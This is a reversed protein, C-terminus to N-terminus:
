FGGDGFGGSPPNITYLNNPDLDPLAITSPDIIFIQPTSESQDNVVVGNNIVTAPTGDVLNNNNGLNGNDDAFSSGQGLLGGLEFTLDVVTNLLYFAGICGPCNIQNGLSANSADGINIAISSDSFFSNNDAGLTVGNGFCDSFAYPHENTNHDATGDYNNSGGCDNAQLQNQTVTHRSTVLDGLTLNIGTSGTYEVTNNDVQANVNGSFSSSSSIPPKVTIGAANIDRITNQQAQIDISTAPESEVLIGNMEGKTESGTGTFDGDILNNNALLVAQNNSFLGIGIASTAIDYITNNNINMFHRQTATSPFEGFLSTNFFSSAGFSQNNAATLNLRESLGGPSQFDFFTDVFIANQLGSSADGDGNFTNNNIAMTLTNITDPDSGLVAEIGSISPGSLSTINSFESNTVTLQEIQGDTRIGAISSTNFFDSGSLNNVNIFYITATTIQQLYVGANIEASRSDDTGFGNVEYRTAVGPGTLTFSDADIVVIGVHNSDPLTSSNTVTVNSNTTISGTEITVDAVSQLRIGQHEPNTITSNTIVVKPRSGTASPDHVYISAQGNDSASLNLINVEGSIGDLFIAGGLCNNISMFRSVSLDSLAINQGRMGVQTSDGACSVTIGSVRNNDALNIMENGIDSTLVPATNAGLITQSVDDIIGIVNQGQGMMVQGTKLDISENYTQTSANSFIVIRDNQNSASEAEGLTTFPQTSRGDGGTNANSDVYWFNQQLTITVTGQASFGEDNNVTYDFTDTTNEQGVPPTYTFTGNTNMVALGGLTTAFGDAVTTLNGSGENADNDLVSGTLRLAAVTQLDGPNTGVAMQTNGFSTYSDDTVTIDDFLQNVTISITGTNSNETGDNVVYQFSDTGFFNPNPTYVLEGSVAIKITAKPNSNPGQSGNINGSTVDLSGNQPGQTVNFTMADGDADSAPLNVDLFSDEDITESKDGAVPATNTVTITLTATNSTAGQNDNVTYTLTDTGTFNSNPTYAIEGATTTNASGNSPNTVLTVTTADLSGDVDTDNSLVPTLNDVTNKAVTTTDDTATPADNIPNVTISVTAENSDSTGDNAKFKFSDPGNYNTNPTYTVNPATGSLIGNSPNQSITYTLTDDEIDSASLTINTATDENTNASVNSATPADNVANITINITAPASDTTGDNTTFQFSDNGNFNNSPTYTLNPATGSLEGQTRSPLLTYTINDGDADSGTLTINFTTDENTSLNQSDATPADNVSNVTINITGTASNTQGDNAIFQLSDTGNFNANPTYTLNPTTGSLTGNSPNQTVTYTLTDGDIDNGTLTISQATDEDTAINQADATPADNVSTVTITITGENSNLQGDNVIFNLNDTGNFNANPTYTLAPATGSLTGNSPQQTITYTLTNGDVDSGMLNINVSNDENTNVSANNAVPADNIANVTISITATSSNLQGDNSVFTFSDTGNFDANPTYTLNPATGSLTGNSPQQTVTYTLNDGDADNGTLPINVATDENTSINQNDATPADNVPDFNLTITAPASNLVGDNTTFTFRDVGNFGDNPTYTLNPVAGTLTGNTPQQNVTFSLTDGDIDSGTLTIGLPTDETGNLTQNDAVPADNVPNVTITVTAPAANVNGDNATFTFSDTGNFDANPTYTLNPATGTLTGNSPQQTVTYTLSDGDPDSGTLTLNVATDENTSVNQNNATPADNVAAINLAITATTSNAQGDNTTFTFNDSGNFGINPTYTLNPATGTLTGNTPQQNVTFSLSDGDVDAGTLTISLPTDEVANLIQNDAVPADNVPNVTISVTATSSNTNGDNSVFTFSDAGNFNANPMYVLEPANGSLTGNSPDNIVNFSLPDNEADSGTLTITLQTDENLNLTQSNALPVDNVLTINFRTNANVTFTGDTVSLSLEDEVIEEGLHQISINGALIEAYTIQAVTEGLPEGNRLIISSATIGPLTIILNDAPTDADSINLLTNDFTITQGENIAITQLTVVPAANTPLPNLADCAPIRNQSLLPENIIILDTGEYAAFNNNRFRRIEANIDINQPLAQDNVFIAQGNVQGDLTGDSLDDAVALILTENPATQGLLIAMRNIANAIGGLAMAYQRESLPANTDPQIPNTPQTTFPDFGLAEINIAQQCVFEDNFTGATALRRIKNVVAQTYITIAAETQGAPLISELGSEESFSIQRSQAQDAEDIYSGGASQVLFTANAPVDQLQFQGNADTQASLNTIINLDPLGTASPLSFSIQADRLPGKSATGSITRTNGNNSQTNSGGEGGCAALALVSAFIVGRHM